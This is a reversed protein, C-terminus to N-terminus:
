SQKEKTKQESASQAREMFANTIGWVTGVGFYGLILYAEM